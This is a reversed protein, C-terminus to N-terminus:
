FLSPFIARLSMQPIKVPPLSSKGKPKVGFLSSWKGIHGNLSPGGKLDELIRSNELDRGSSVKGEVMNESGSEAQQGLAGESNGGELKSIQVQGKGNGGSIREECPIPGGGPDGSDLPADPDKCGSSEGKAPSGSDEAALQGQTSGSSKSLFNSNKARVSEM